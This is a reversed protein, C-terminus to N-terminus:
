TALLATTMFANKRSGDAALCAVLISRKSHRQYPIAVCSDTYEVPVIVSAKHSDTHDSCGIEDVHLIFGWPVGGIETALQEFWAEIEEPNVAVRKAEMRTGIVSNVTDLNRIAHRLTDSSISIQPHIQLDM